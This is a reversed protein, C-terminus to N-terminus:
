LMSFRHTNAHAKLFHKATLSITKYSHHHYFTFIGIAMSLHISQLFWEIAYWNHKGKTIYICICLENSIFSTVHIFKCMYNHMSKSCVASSCNLIKFTHSFFRARNIAMLYFSVMFKLWINEHVREFM